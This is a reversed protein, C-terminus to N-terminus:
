YGLLKLRCHYGFNKCSSSTVHCDHSCKLQKGKLMDNYFVIFCCTVNLSVGKAFLHIIINIFSFCKMHVFPVM